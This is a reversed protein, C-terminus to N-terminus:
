VIIKLTGRIIEPRLAMKRGLVIKELNKMEYYILILYYYVTYLNNKNELFLRKIRKLYLTDVLSILSSYDKNELYKEFRSIKLELLHFGMEILFFNEPNITLFIEETDKRGLMISWYTYTLIKELQIASFIIKSYRKVSEAYYEYYKADLCLEKEMLSIRGKRAKIHDICIKISLPTESLIKILEEENRISLFKERDIFYHYPYYYELGGSGRMYRLKAKINEVELKELFARFFKSYEPAIKELFLVKEIFKKSIDEILEQINNEKISTTYGLNDLDIDGRILKHYDDEKLLHQRLGHVRVILYTKM